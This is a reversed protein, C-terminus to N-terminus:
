ENWRYIPLNYRNTSALRRFHGKPNFLFLKWRSARLSSVILAGVSWLMPLIYVSTNTPNGVRSAQRGGCRQSSSSEEKRIRSESQAHEITNLLSSNKSLSRATTRRSNGSFTKERSRNSKWLVRRSYVAWKPCCYTQASIPSPPFRTLIKTNHKSIIIKKKHKM